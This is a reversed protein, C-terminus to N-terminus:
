EEEKICDKNTLCTLLKPCTLCEEPIRDGSAVYGFYHACEPVDKERSVYKTEASVPNSNQTALNDETLSQSCAYHTEKPTRSLDTLTLPETSEKESENQLSTQSKAKIKIGSSYILDYYTIFKKTNRNLVFVAVLRRLNFLFTSCARQWPQM